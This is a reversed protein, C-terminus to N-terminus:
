ARRRRGLLVCAAAAALPVGPEPVVHVTFAGVNNRWQTSDMTGLYFRTAGAPVVVQQLIGSRTLGDGIFFTQKLSPRLLAYNRSEGTSFDLFAPPPSLDPRDPGLFVGLLSNFPARIDGINNQPGANHQTVSGGDPPERSTFTNDIHVGGQARFRLVGGPTLTLDSVLVPAQGPVGDGTGRSSENWGDPMGALWPNSTGPVTVTAAEASLPFTSLILAAACVFCFRVVSKRYSTAM